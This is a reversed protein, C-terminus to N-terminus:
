RKIAHLLAAHVHKNSTVAGKFPQDYRLPEGAFDTVMGGAESVILDIAAMDHPGVGEEVFGVFRGTAVLAAKYVAGSFTALYVDTEALAAVNDIKGKAVAKINSSVAVVQRTLTAAPSVALKRGNCYAGGGRVASYMRDLYPDYVVGMQPVGDVVLGLSFMSTPVGWTYAITGDIPDCLWKRGAGYSATSEEEGIVGDDPFAESLREIVMRNILKDAVTVPSGDMKTETEQDGDFYQLMVRGAERAIVTAVDREHEMYKERM